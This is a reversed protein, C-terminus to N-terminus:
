RPTRNVQTQLAVPFDSTAEGTWAEKGTRGARKDKGRRMAKPKKKGRPTRSPVATDRDEKPKTLDPVKVRRSRPSRPSLTDGPGHFTEPANPCLVWEAVQASLHGPRATARTETQDGTLRPDSRDGGHGKQTHRRGAWARCARPERERQHGQTDVQPQKQQSARKRRSPTPGGLSLSLQRLPGLSESCSM